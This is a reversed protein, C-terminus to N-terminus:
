HEYYPPFSQTIHFHSLIRMTKNWTKHGVGKNSPKCMTRINKQTEILCNNALRNAKFVTYITYYYKLTTNVAQEVAGLPWVLLHLTVNWNVHKWFYINPIHHTIEEDYVKFLMHFINKSEATAGKIHWELRISSNLFQPFCILLGSQQMKRWWWLNVSVNTQKSFPELHSRLETADAKCPVVRQLSFIHDTNNM